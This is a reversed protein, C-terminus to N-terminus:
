PYEYFWIFDKRPSLEVYEYGLRAVTDITDKLSTNDRYHSPDYALRM